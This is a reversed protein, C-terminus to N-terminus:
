EYLIKEEESVKTPIEVKITLVHNGKTTTNPRYFGEKSIRLQQGNQTGPEVKVRKHEGYITEVDLDCGLVADIISISQTTHADLGIRKITPHAKVNVRIEM